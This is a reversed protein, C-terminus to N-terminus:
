TVDLTKGGLRRDRWSSVCRVQFTWTKLVTNVRKACYSEIESNLSHGPMKNGGATGMAKVDVSGWSLSKPLLIGGREKGRHKPFNPNTKSPKTSTM